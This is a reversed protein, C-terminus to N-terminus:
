SEDELIEDVKRAMAELEKVLNSSLKAYNAYPLALPAEFWEQCISCLAERVRLELSSFNTRASVAKKDAEAQIEQTTADMKANAKSVHKTHAEQAKTMGHRLVELRGHKTAQEVAM